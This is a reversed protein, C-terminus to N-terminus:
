FRPLLSDLYKIPGTIGCVRLSAKAGVELPDEMGAMVYCPQPGSDLLINRKETGM